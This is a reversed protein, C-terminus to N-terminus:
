GMRVIYNFAMNKVTTETNGKYTADFNHVHNGDTSTQGSWGCIEKTEIHKAQFDLAMKQVLASPRYGHTDSYDAIRAVPSLAGHAGTWVGFWGQDVSTPKGFNLTDGLHFHNGNTKTAGSLKFSILGDKELSLLKRGDPNGKITQGRLDPLYYIDGVKLNAYLKALVPNKEPHFESGNCIAYGDPINDSPYPLPMGLPIEHYLGRNVVWGSKPSDPTKTNGKVCNNYVTGKYSVSAGIGYSFPKGTGCNSIWEPVTYEQYEKINNTVEKMISNFQRREVYHADPKLTPDEEYQPTYGYLYSVTTGVPDDPVDTTDGNVAFPYKYYKAMSIVETLIRATSVLDLCIM